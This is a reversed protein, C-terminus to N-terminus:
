KTVIVIGAFIFSTAVIQKFTLREDFWWSSIFAVLIFTIGQSVPVATSIPLRGLAKTYLLMGVSYITMAGIFWVSFISELLSSNDSALRSQKLLATGIGSCCASLVILLWLFKPYQMM